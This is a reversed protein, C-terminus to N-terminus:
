KIALKTASIGLIESNNKVSTQHTTQPINEFSSPFTRSKAKQDDLYGVRIARHQKLDIQTNLSRM